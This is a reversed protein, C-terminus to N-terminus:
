SQSSHADALRLAEEDEAAGPASSLFLLSCGMVLLGGIIMIPRVGVLGAIFGGVLAALLAAGYNMAQTVSYVRGLLESPTVRQQYASVSVNYAFAAIGITFFAALASWFGQALGFALRAGGTVALMSILTARTGVFAVLRPTALGGLVSGVAAASFLFGYQGSSLGLDKKAYVVLLSSGALLCFNVVTSAVAAARLLPTARIVSLGELLESRVTSSPDRGQRQSRATPKSSGWHVLLVLVTACVFTAGNVFFPISASIGLLFASIPSGAIDQMFIRVAYLRGNGKELLNEPLVDALMPQSATDVFIEALSLMATLIYVHWLEVSGAVVHYGFLALPGARLANGWAITQRRDFRDVLVGVLPGFILGPVSSLAMILAIDLPDSSVSYAVLPLAVMRMGDGLNAVAASGWLLWYNKGLSSKM